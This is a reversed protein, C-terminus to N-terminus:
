HSPSVHLWAIQLWPILRTMQYYGPKLVLLTLSQKIKITYEKQFVYIFQTVVYVVHLNNPIFDCLNMGTWEITSTFYSTWLVVAGEAPRSWFICVNASHPWKMCHDAVHYVADHWWIEPWLTIEEIEDEQGLGIMSFKLTGRFACFNASGNYTAIQKM